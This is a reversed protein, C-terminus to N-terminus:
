ADEEDCDALLESEENEHIVASTTNNDSVLIALTSDDLTIDHTCVNYKRYQRGDVRYGVTWVDHDPKYEFMIRAYEMFFMRDTQLALFLRRAYNIESKTGAYLYDPNIVLGRSHASLVFGADQLHKIHARIKNVFGQTVEIADMEKALESFFSENYQAIILTAKAKTEEGRGNDRTGFEPIYFDYAAINQNNSAYLTAIASFLRQEFTNLLRFTNYIHHMGIGGGDRMKRRQVEARSYIM